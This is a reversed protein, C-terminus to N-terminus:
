SRGITPITSLNWVEKSKQNLVKPNILIDLEILRLISDWIENRQNVGKPGHDDPLLHVDLLPTGIMLSIKPPRPGDTPDLLLPPREM